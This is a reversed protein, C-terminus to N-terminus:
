SRSSRREVVVEDELGLREVLEKLFYFVEEVTVKRDEWAKVWYGICWAILDRRRWLEYLWRALAGLIFAAAAPWASALLDFLPELM